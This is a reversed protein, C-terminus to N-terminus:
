ARCSALDGGSGAQRRIKAFGRCARALLNGSYSSTSCFWSRKWCILLLRGQEVLFVATVMGIPNSLLSSPNGIHIGMQDLSRKRTRDAGQYLRIVAAAGAVDPTIPLGMASGPQFLLMGLGVFVSLLVALAILAGVPRPIYLREWSTVLPQFLLKLVLALVVPLM